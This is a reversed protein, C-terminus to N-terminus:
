GSIKEMASVIRVICRQAELQQNATSPIRLIGAPHMLNVLSIRHVEPLSYEIFRAAIKGLTILVKPQALEIFEQLRPSCTQAQSKTPDLYNGDEESRPPMCAVVNTIAYSPEWEAEDVAESIITNLLQGADGVFPQGITDESIGPAEGVFLLDCPVTGRALVVKSRSNCLDCAECGSWKTVHDRYKM